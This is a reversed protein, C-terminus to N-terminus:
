ALEELNIKRLFNDIVKEYEEKNNWYAEVHGANSALYLEKKGQKIKYMDISMEKPIFTDDKGHIFLIPVKVDAIDRAPSVDRYDFGTRWRSLLRSLFIFVQPLIHSKHKMQLKLLKMLDSFPCDAICFSVRPDIATNQLAIAAGMSEGMTGVVCDNGFRQVVWDICAKLDYKEYLGYTTNKGGSKGHNRHDYILVNFKRKLFIPVFKVSGYLSWAFGHCIIITKHSGKVQFFLGYLMYGYPSQIYVEQHPMKEFEDKIIKGTLLETEYTFQSSHTKPYIVLNSFYINLLLFVILM